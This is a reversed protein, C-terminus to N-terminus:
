VHCVQVTHHLYVGQQNVLLSGAINSAQCFHTVNRKRELSSNEDGSRLTALSSFSSYVSVVHLVDMIQYSHAANPYVRPTLQHGLTLPMACMCFSCTICM